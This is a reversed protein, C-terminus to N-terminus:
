KLDSFQPRLNEPISKLFMVIWAKRPLPGNYEPIMTMVEEPTTEPTVKEAAEKAKM